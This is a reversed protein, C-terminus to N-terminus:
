IIKITNPNSSLTFSMTLVGNKQGQEELDPDLDEIDLEPIDLDIM